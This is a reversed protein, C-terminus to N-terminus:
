LIHELRYKELEKAVFKRLKALQVEISLIEREKSKLSERAYIIYRVNFFKRKNKLRLNEKEALFPYLNTAL